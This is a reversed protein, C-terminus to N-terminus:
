ETPTWVPWWGRGKADRANVTVALGAVALLDNKGSYILPWRTRVRPPLGAEQMLGKVQKAGFAQAIRDGDQKPKLCLADCLWQEGIGKPDVRWSLVGGWDPVALLQGPDFHFTYAQPQVRNKEVWLWGRYRFVVGGPLSWEPIRDPGAQLMQQQFVELADPTSLGLGRQEAWRLLLLRQRAPSLAVLKSVPLRGGDAISVLDEAVVEDLVQAADAMHAASRVLGSRYHPLREELKPMWENRLWNRLFRPDTNSDDEVWCLGHQDAYERLTQRPTSLLPRWLALGDAQRWVPMAALAHPGGGRLAQLLVTEALDDQHQALVLANASTKAFAAYRAERAQAELSQGGARSVTVKEIRLPVGLQSCLEQCFAAWSDAHASLGHHVHVACLSYPLAQRLECLLHLLVVSDLGGSLGLELTTQGSLSDPWHSQLQSLLNPAKKRSVAM